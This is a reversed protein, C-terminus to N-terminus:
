NFFIMVIRNTFIISNKKWIGADVREDVWFGRMDFIFKTRTMSKILMAIFAPVYSRAHIFSIKEKFVINLAVLLGFFIDFLTSIVLPYKHYRVRYWNINSDNIKKFIYKYLLTNSLDEKKEFSLLYINNSSSLNELYPLVQSQGLPELVGDYSIYLIKM